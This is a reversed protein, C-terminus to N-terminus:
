TGWCSAAHDQASCGEGAEGVDVVVLYGQTVGRKIVWLGNVLERVEMAAEDADSLSRSLFKSSLISWSKSSTPSM